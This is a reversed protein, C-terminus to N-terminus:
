GDKRIMPLGWPFDRYIDIIRGLTHISYYRRGYLYGTCNEGEYEPTKERCKYIKM